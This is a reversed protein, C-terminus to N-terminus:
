APHEEAAPASPEAPARRNQEEARWQRLREAALEAYAPNLEIGLWDRGYREAVLAVTGAGMFPDLVIGPRWGTADACGCFRALPGIVLWRGDRWRRTRRWPLECGLCVRVPCTSLLPREVLQEPFTAFHAGRYNATSFSWVDGPNKGLPHHEQGAAKMASLGHNLDVRPTTGGGLSQVATRPPYAAPRRVRSPRLPTEAPVRVADLNFYYHRERTLLLMVEYTCSLRDGVSSPMPNRKAWIIQNRLLWGDEVLGLALRQPGMLLSKKPAGERAHRSYGDGVNLWLSGTSTLVRALERCVTRLRAVWDEVSAEAGVQGPQGYDRLSFYPPSTIVCDVSSEPLERLRTAADGILIHNLPLAPTRDPRQMAGSQNARVTSAADSGRGADTTM